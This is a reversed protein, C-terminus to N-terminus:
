DDDMDHYDCASARGAEVEAVQRGDEVVLRPPITVPVGAVLPRSPAVQAWLTEKPLLPRAASHLTLLQIDILFRPTKRVKATHGFEQCNQCQVKSWDKPEPCDRSFHGQKECNRCTVLDPNRPQDCEKAM